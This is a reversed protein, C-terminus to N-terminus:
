LIYTIFHVSEDHKNQNQVVLFDPSIIMGNKQNFEHKNQYLKLSGRHLVSGNTSLYCSLPHLRLWSSYALSGLVDSRHM